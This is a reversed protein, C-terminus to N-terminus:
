KYWFIYNLKYWLRTMHTSTVWLLFLFSASFVFGCIRFFEGLFRGLTSLWHYIVTLDADCCEYGSRPPGYGFSPPSTMRAVIFM